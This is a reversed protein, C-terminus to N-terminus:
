EVLSVAASDPCLPNHGSLRGSGNVGHYVMTDLYSRVRNVPRSGSQGSMASEYVGIYLLGARGESLVDTRVSGCQGSTDSIALLPSAPRESRVSRIQGTEIAM